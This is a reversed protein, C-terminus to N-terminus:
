LYMTNSNKVDQKLFNKYTDKKKCKNKWLYNLKCGLKTHKMM